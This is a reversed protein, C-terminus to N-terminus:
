RRPGKHSQLLGGKFPGGKRFNETTPALPASARAANLGYFRLTCDGAVPHKRRRVKGDRIRALIERQKNEREPPISITIPKALV